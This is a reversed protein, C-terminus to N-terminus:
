GVLDIKGRGSFTTSASTAATPTPTGDDPKTVVGGSVIHNVSKSFNQLLKHIGDAADKRPGEAGDLYASEFRALLSHFRDREQELAERQRPSLKESNLASEFRSEIKKSFAELRANGEATPAAQPQGKDVPVGAGFAAERPDTRKSLSQAANVPRIGSVANHSSISM